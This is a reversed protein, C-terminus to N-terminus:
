LNMKKLRGYISSLARSLKMEMHSAQIPDCMLTTSRSGIRRFLAGDKVFDVNLVAYGSLTMEHSQRDRVLTLELDLDNIVSLIPAPYYQFREGCIVYRVDYYHGIDYYSAKPVISRVDVPNYLKHSGRIKPDFEIDFVSNM